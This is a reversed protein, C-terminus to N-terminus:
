HEKEIVFDKAGLYTSFRRLANKRHNLLNKTVKIGPEWWWHKIVLLDGQRYHEPEFRAVFTDGMLVPLVYYGFERKIVPTYVEWRYKFNFLDEILDRDWMLNDLPAIFKFIPQPPDNLQSILDTLSTLMYFPEKFGEIAVTKVLGERHLEHLLPKRITAKSIGHGLWGGGSKAWLLGTSSLRRLLYWKFFAEDSSFDVKKHYHEAPVIRSSLDFCRIAHEKNEVCLSGEHFMYDLAASSLKGHGWVGRETKGMDLDKTRTPGSKKIHEHIADVLELAEISKRNRLTAKVSHTMAKRIPELYSWDESLVISMMKDWGDLLLKEKYLLETLYHRRYGHVRSQLVLDTNRGVVDLPDYQISRVKNLYNMIAEKPPTNQNSEGLLQQHLLIFRRAQTKTFSYDTKM